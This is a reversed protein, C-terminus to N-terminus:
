YPRTPESIHILSLFWDAVMTDLLDEWNGSTVFRDDNDLRDLAKAVLGHRYEDLAERVESMGDGVQRRNIELSPTENAFEVALHKWLGGAEVSQHQQPDGIMRVTAHAETAHRYLRDLQRNGITSAEDVVVVTNPSLVSSPEPATEIRTLLGELTQSVLGTEAELKRAAEGFPAAGIM